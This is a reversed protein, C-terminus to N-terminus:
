FWRAQRYDKARVMSCEVIRNHVRQWQQNFPSGTPYDCAHSWAMDAAIRPSSYRRLMGLASATIHQDATM